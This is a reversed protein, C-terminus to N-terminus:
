KEEAIVKIQCVEHFGATGQSRGNGSKKYGGFPTKPSFYWATNHAINGAQIQRAVRRYREIDETFVYAGLGYETDNALEVAEEETEFTVVPLVPGFVEENWVRMEPTINTLVTVEYYAGSLDKPQKGGVIVKAGKEVADAVQAELKELQRKAVLPGIKTEENLQDGVKTNAAYEKLGELVEEYKSTHVIARKLGDCYQGTNDFRAGALVEIVKPVDADQFVIGPASGGMETLVPISRESAIQTIYQGTQTSGTFLIMDVDQRVLIEGVKGDGIIPVLVGEPLDSKAILEAILQTFMVIEESPKIVVTNGAILAQGTQFSINNFPFNWPTIAAIVGRPEFTQIHKEADNEFVVSPALAQEAQEMYDEFEDFTGTISERSSGIPKGMEKSMTQAIEELHEECVRLFSRIKDSREKISLAAWSPQAEQAKAVASNVDVETTGEVEGVLEYNRGPNTSVIKM